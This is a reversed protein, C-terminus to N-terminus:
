GERHCEFYIKSPTGECKCEFSHSLFTKKRLTIRARNYSVQCRQCSARTVGGGECM